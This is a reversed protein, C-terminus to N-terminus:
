LLSEWTRLTLGRCPFGSQSLGKHKPPSVKSHGKNDTEAEAASQPHQKRLHSGVTGGPRLQLMRM